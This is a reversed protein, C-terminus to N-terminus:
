WVTEDYDVAQGGGGQAEEITQTMMAMLWRSLGGELDVGGGGVVVAPSPQYNGNVCGNTALPGM